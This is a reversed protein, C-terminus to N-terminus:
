GTSRRKFKTYDVYQRAKDLSAKQVMVNAKAADLTAQAQKIAAEAAAVQAIATAVAKHGALQRSIATQQEEAKEDVLEQEIADKAAM